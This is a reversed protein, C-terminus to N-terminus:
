IGQRRYKVGSVIDEVDTATGYITIMGDSTTHSNIVITPAVEDAIISKVFDFNKILYLSIVLLVLIGLKYLLKLNKLLNM